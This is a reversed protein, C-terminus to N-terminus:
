HLSSMIQKFFLHSISKKGNEVFKFGSHPPPTPTNTFPLMIFKHPPFYVFPFNIIITFSSWSRVIIFISSSDYYKYVLSLQVKFMLGLSFCQTLPFTLSLLSFLPFPLFKSLFCIVWSFYIRWINQVQDIIKGSRM